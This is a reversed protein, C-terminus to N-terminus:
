PSLFDSLYTSLCSLATSALYLWGFGKPSEIYYYAYSPLFLVLSGLAWRFQRRLISVIISNFWLAGTVSAFVVTPLEFPDM